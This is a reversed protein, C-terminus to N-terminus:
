KTPNFDEAQHLILYKICHYLVLPRNHVPQLCYEELSALLLANRLQTDTTLQSIYTIQQHMYSDRQLLAQLVEDLIDLVRMQHKRSKTVWTQVKSELTLANGLRIILNRYASEQGQGLYREHLIQYRYEIHQAAIDLAQFELKDPQALYSELLWCIISESDHLQPYEADLRSRWYQILKEAETVMTSNCEEFYDKLTPMVIEM